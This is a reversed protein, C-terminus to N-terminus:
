PECGIEKKYPRITHTNLYSCIVTSSFTIETSM